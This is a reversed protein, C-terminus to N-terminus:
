LGIFIFIGKFVLITLSYSHGLGSNQCKEEIVKLVSFRKLIQMLKQRFSTRKHSSESIKESYCKILQWERESSGDWTAHIVEDEHVIQSQINSIFHVTRWCYIM